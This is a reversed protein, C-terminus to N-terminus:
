EDKKKFRQRSAIFGILGISILWAGTPLSLPVGETHKPTGDALVPRLALTEHFRNLSQTYSTSVISLSEASGHVVPLMCAICVILIKTWISRSVM